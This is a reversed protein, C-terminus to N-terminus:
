LTSFAEEGGINPSPSPSWDSSNSLLSATSSRLTDVHSRLNDQVTTEQAQTGSGGFCVRLATDLEIGSQKADIYKQKIVDFGIQKILFCMIQEFCVFSQELKDVHAQTIGESSALATLFRKDGTFMCAEEADILAQLLQMEGADLGDSSEDMAEILTLDTLVCDIERIGDDIFAQMRDVVEETYRKIVRARKSASSPCYKFRLTNLVQLDGYKEQLLPKAQELLDLQALKHVIDNDILLAM